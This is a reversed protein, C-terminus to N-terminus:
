VIRAKAVAFRELLEADPDIGIGPESWLAVQMAGDAEARSPSLPEAIDHQLTDGAPFYDAPLTFNDRAALALGIRTGVASQPMAGVFCPVEQEQCLDHIALAPTLGGVRGPEINMYKCSKLELAMDAQDVSTISEHLCLPTSVSEQVMAHGVLDDAPLPQEYMKLGFDDMRQLIELQELRMGGEVDGIIAETPFEKRVADCMQIDWGPRIMLRIRAYGDELARGIGALFGELSDMQDFTLGVEISQRSGGLLQHLPKGQIRAALDWWAADLASKAYRNGRFPELLRGLDNGSEVMTGVVAPAIWDRLCCFAGAAWEHSSVPANGPSAEGWGALEGSQMRVLVTELADAPGGPLTIPQRLPLAVHFLEISDIQM